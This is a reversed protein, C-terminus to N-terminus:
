FAKERKNSGDAIMIASNRSVSRTGLLQTIALETLNSSFVTPLRKRYRMDIIANLIDPFKDDTQQKVEDVVLVDISSFTDILEGETSNWGAKRALYFKMAMQKYTVYRFSKGYFIVQKGLASVLHTKGSGINGLIMFGDPKNNNVVEKIWYKLNRVNKIENDTHPKFNGITCKIFRDEIGSNVITDLVRKKNDTARLRQDICLPCETEAGKKFLHFDKIKGHKPCNINIEREEFKHALHAPLFDMLSKM